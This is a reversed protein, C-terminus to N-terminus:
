CNTFDCNREGLELFFLHMQQGTLTTNKSRGIFLQCFIKEPSSPEPGQGPVILAASSFDVQNDALTGRHNEDLHAVPFVIPEARGDLAHSRGLLGSDDAAGSVVQHAIGPQCGAFQPEVYDAYTM